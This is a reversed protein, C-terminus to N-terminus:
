PMTPYDFVTIPEKLDEPPAGRFEALIADAKDSSLDVLGIHLPANNAERVTLAAPLAHLLEVLVPRNKVGLQEVKTFVLAKAPVRAIAEALTDSGPSIAHILAQTSPVNRVDVEILREPGSGLQQVWRNVQSHPLDVHIATTTPNLPEFTPKLVHLHNKPTSTPAPASQPDPARVAINAGQSHFWKELETGDLAIRHPHTEIVVPGVIHGTAGELKAEALTAGRLSSSGLECRTLVANSFDTKSLLSAVLNAGTLDAGHFNAGMASIKTLNAGTLRSMAFNARDASAKALNAGSLDARTFRAETCEADILILDRLVTDALNSGTLWAGTLDGGTFDAGRLDADLAYFLEHAEGALWKRLDEAVAPDHPWRHPQWDHTGSSM